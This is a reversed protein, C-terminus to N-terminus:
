RAPIEEEALAERVTKVLAGRGFPKLVLGVMGEEVIERAEGDAGYGTSLVARVGPDIDRLARFCERGSMEPMMMDILVLDVKDGHDRYYEVAERGNSFDVVDYGSAELVSRAVERVLDEDDIVLIRGSAVDRSPPTERRPQECEDCRELPLYIEFTSGAGPQSEVRTFGGHNKVTGYVMALGMGTGRGRTTFFPEFIREMDEPPIGAGTDSVTVVAYAGPKPAPAPMRGPEIEATATALKIQGGSPMANRANIALNLIVQELQGADGTIVIDESNMEFSVSINDSLTQRFQAIAEAIVEHLNVADRRQRGRGAFALLKRTLDAAREAAKEITRASEHVATGPEATLRLMNAYGLIGTLMNNFEHAVGGALDGIAQMKASRRLREELMRRESIDRTVGVLHSPAGGAGHVLSVTTETAVSSGDRRVVEMEVNLPGLQGASFAEARSGCLNKTRELSESTLFQHPHMQVAEIASYGTLRKVSPSVYRLARLDPGMTWVTDSMNELLLGYRDDNDCPAEQAKKRDLAGALMEGVLNLLELCGAPPTIDEETSDFQMFGVVDGDWGVPAVISSRAGLSELYRRESEGEDPIAEVRPIGLAEFRSFADMFWPLDEVRLDGPPQPSAEGDESLWQHTCTFRTRGSDLLMVRGTSAGLFGGISELAAEFGHDVGERNINAFTAGISAVLRHWALRYESEDAAGAQERQSETM